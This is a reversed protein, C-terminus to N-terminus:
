DVKVVDAKDDHALVTWRDGPKLHTLELSKRASSPIVTGQHMLGDAPSRYAVYAGDRCIRKKGKEECVTEFGLIDASVETYNLKNDAWSYAILCLGAVVILMRIVGSVKAFSYFFARM